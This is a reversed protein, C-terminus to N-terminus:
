KVRRFLSTKVDAGEGRAITLPNVLDLKIRLRAFELEDAQSAFGLTSRKERDMRTMLVQVRSALLVFVGICLTAGDRRKLDVGCDAPQCQEIMLRGGAGNRAM